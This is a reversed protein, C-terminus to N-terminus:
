GNGSAQWSQAARLCGVAEERVLAEALVRDQGAMERCGRGATRGAVSRKENDLVRGLEDVLPALRVPEARDATDLGAPIAAAFRAHVRLAPQQHM